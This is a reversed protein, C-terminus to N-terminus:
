LVEPIRFAGAPGRDGMLSDLKATKRGSPVIGCTAPFLCARGGREQGLKGDM